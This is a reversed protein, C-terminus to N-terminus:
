KPANERFFGTEMVAGYLEKKTQSLKQSIKLKNTNADVIVLGKHVDKTCICLTSEHEKVRFIKVVSQTVM